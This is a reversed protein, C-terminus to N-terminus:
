LVSSLSWMDKPSTLIEGTASRVKHITRDNEQKRLQRALLRHPKDSFEFYKQKTYLFAKSVKASLITNYECTLSSIKRYLEMSPTRANEEDLLKIKQDLETLRAKNKKKRSAEFSIVSGRLFAKFVEWLMAPSTEPKDNTDFYLSMQMSLFECFVKESLLPNLRWSSWPRRMNQVDLTFTVPSHDSIIISHYKANAAYPLFKGDLLFYDIRTHSNHPASYFSNETGTPNAVRQVDSMDTNNTFTNLFLSSKSKDTRLTSLRDLYPDWVCNFDGGIILNTQSM